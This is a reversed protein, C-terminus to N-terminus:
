KEIKKLDELERDLEDLLDEYYEMIQQALENQEKTWDNPREIIPTM